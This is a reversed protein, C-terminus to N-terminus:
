IRDLSSLEHVCKSLHLKYCYFIMYMGILKIEIM